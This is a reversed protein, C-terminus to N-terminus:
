KPMPPLNYGWVNQLEKLIREYVHPITEMKGILIETTKIGKKDDNEFMASSNLSWKLGEVKTVYCIALCFDSLQNKWYKSQDHFTWVESVYPSLQLFKMKWANLVKMSEKSRINALKITKELDPMPIKGKQNEIM